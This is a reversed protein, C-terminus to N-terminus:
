SPTPTQLQRWRRASTSAARSSAKVPSIINTYDLNVKAANLTARREEVTAEDLHVQAAAQDLVSKDNDVADQSVIGQTRLRTDRNFNV